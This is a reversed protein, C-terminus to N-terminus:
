GSLGQGAVPGARRFQEFRARLHHRGGPGARRAGGAGAAVELVALREPGTRMGTPRAGATALRGSGAVAWDALVDDGIDLRNRLLAGNSPSNRGDRGSEHAGMEAVLRVTCVHFALLRRAPVAALGPRASGPRRPVAALALGDREPVAGVGPRDRGGAVHDVRQRASQEQAADLEDFIMEFFDRESCPDGRGPGGVIQELGPAADRK